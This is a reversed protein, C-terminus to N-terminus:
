TSVGAEDKLKNLFSRLTKMSEDDVISVPMASVGRKKFLEIKESVERKELTDCKTLLVYEDKQTLTQDYNELETRVTDYDKLPDESEASVLHFLTRTRKIHKLFKVGLGKGGSAGEILGPIDALILGYYSGLHAELTTFSYNGVKSKAGTLENLLSSKGANPLGILGVDAILRLEIKFNAEEGKSGEEFEKPSTNISSRFKFNGRGGRGGRVATIQQGVTTMEQSYGTDLNTIVSGIPVKLILDDGRHGDIFQGRGNKGHPAQIEKRHAFSILVTLDSVGEFHISGGNGGDGGVPGQNLRVKNFAVAGRGGDGAKLHVTVDDVLM